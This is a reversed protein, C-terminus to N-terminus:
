YGDASSSKSHTLTGRRIRYQEEREINELRGGIRERITSNVRVDLGCKRKMLLMFKKPLSDRGKKSKTLTKANVEEVFARIVELVELTTKKVHGVIWCIEDSFKIPSHPIVGYSFYKELANGRLVVQIQGRTLYAESLNITTLPFYFNNIAKLENFYLTTANMLEDGFEFKMERQASFGLDFSLEGDYIKLKKSGKFYKGDTAIMYHPNRFERSITPFPAFHIFRAALEKKLYDFRGLIVDERRNRHIAYAYNKIAKELAITSSNSWHYLDLAKSATEDMYTQVILDSPRKYKGQLVQGQLDWITKEKGEKWVRDM